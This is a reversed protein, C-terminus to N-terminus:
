LGCRRDLRGFRDASLRGRCERPSVPFEVSLSALLGSRVESECDRGAATNPIESDIMLKGDQEIPVVRMIPASRQHMRNVVIGKADWSLSRAEFVERRDRAETGYPMLVGVLRAPKARPGTRSRSQVDSKMWSKVETSLPGSASLLDGRGRDFSHAPGVPFHSYGKQRRM